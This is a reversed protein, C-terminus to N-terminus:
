VFELIKTNESMNKCPPMTKKMGVQKGDQNIVQKKKNKKKKKVIKEGIKSVLIM